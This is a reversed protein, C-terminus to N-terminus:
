HGANLFNTLFWSCHGTQGCYDNRDNNNEINTYSNMLNLNKYERWLYNM